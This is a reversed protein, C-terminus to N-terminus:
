PGTLAACLWGLDTYTTRPPAQYEPPRITPVALSHRAAALSLFAAGGPEDEFYVYGLKQGSHDKVVFCADLEEVSWPPPFRRAPMLALAHAADNAWDWTRSPM